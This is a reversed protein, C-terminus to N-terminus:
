SKKLQSRFDQFLDELAFTEKNFEVHDSEQILSFVLKSQEESLTEELMLCLSYKPPIDERTIKIGTQGFSLIEMPEYDSLHFFLRCELFAYPDKKFSGQLSEKIPWLLKITIKARDLESLFMGNQERSMTYSLLIQQLFEDIHPAVASAGSTQKVKEEVRKKASPGLNDLIMNVIKIGFIDIELPTINKIKEIFKTTSSQIPGQSSNALNSIPSGHGVLSPPAM